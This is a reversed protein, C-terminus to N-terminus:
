PGDCNCVVFHDSSRQGHIHKSGVCQQQQQLQSALADQRGDEKHQHHQTDEQTLNEEHSDEEDSPFLKEKRPLSPPLNKKVPTRRPHKVKPVGHQSTSM